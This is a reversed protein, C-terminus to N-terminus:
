FLLTFFVYWLCYTPTINRKGSPIWMGYHRRQASRGLKNFKLSYKCKRNQTIPFFAHETETISQMSYVSNRNHTCCVVTAGTKLPWKHSFTFCGVYSLHGSIGPELMVILNQYRCIQYQQIWANLLHDRKTNIWKESAYYCIHCCFYHNKKWILM